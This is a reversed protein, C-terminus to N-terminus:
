NAQSALGPTRSRRPRPAKAPAQYRRGRTRPTAPLLPATLQEYLRFLHEVLERDSQFQESRYCREVARDLSTHARHLEPPMTNPDCLDALTGMGRPPLHPARAIANTHGQLNRVNTEFAAVSARCIGFVDFFENYFTQKDARESTAESWNRSFRIARDRVENWSLRPMIHRSIERM